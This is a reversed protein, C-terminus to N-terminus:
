NEPDPNPLWDGFSEAPEPSGLWTAPDMQEPIADDGSVLDGDFPQYGYGGFIAKQWLRYLADAQPFEGQLFIDMVPLEYYAYGKGNLAPGFEMMFAAYGACYLEAAEAVGETLIVHPDKPNDDGAALSKLALIAYRTPDDVKSPGNFEPLNLYDNGALLAKIDRAMAQRMEYYKRHALEHVLITQDYSVNQENYAARNLGILGGYADYDFDFIGGCQDSCVGGAIDGSAGTLSGIFISLQHGNVEEYMEAPINSFNQDILHLETQTWDTQPTKPAWGAGAEDQTLLHIHYKNQVMARTLPLDERYPNQQAVVVPSGDPGPYDFLNHALTETGWWAVASFLAILAYIAFWELCARRRGNSKSKFGNSKPKFHIPARPHRNERISIYESPM